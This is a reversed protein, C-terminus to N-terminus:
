HIVEITSKRKKRTIKREIRSLVTLIHMVALILFALMVLVSGDYLRGTSMFGAGTILTGICFFAVLAGFCGDRKFRHSMTKSSM